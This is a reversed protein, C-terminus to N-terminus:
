PRVVVRFGMVRGRGVPNHRQRYASRVYEPNSRFGAGRLVRRVNEGAELDERGDGADYPYRFDPSEPQTGWLSRTWESVNGALDHVGEPTAGQPYIGVPTPRAVNM